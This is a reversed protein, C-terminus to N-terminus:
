LMLVGAGLSQNMEDKSSPFLEVYRSGLIQRHKALAGKLDAGAGEFV